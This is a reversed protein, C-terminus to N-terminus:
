GRLKYQEMIKEMQERRAMEEDTEDCYGFLTLTSSCACGMCGETECDQCNNVEEIVIRKYESQHRNKFDILNKIAIDINQDEILSSVDNIYKQVEKRPM